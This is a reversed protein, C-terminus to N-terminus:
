YGYHKIREIDEKIQKILKEENKFKRFHRLYKQLYIVLKKGYLSGKFGILHAEIKPLGRHDLPGIVIGAKLKYSKAKLKFEAWGAYVGFRIKLHRRQYDRRDLNATPFGLKKGYNEGYIVKGSIQYM